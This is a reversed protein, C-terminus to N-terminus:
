ERRRISRRKRATKERATVRRGVVTEWVITVADVTDDHDADPFGSLESIFAKNWGGRVVVVNGADVRHLWPHARLLKGGKAGKKEVKAKGLLQQKIDQYLGVFGAVAEIAIRQVNFEETDVETQHIINVRNKVWSAKNRFMDVIYLTDTEKHYGGLAGASYDSSQKETVALDWGRVLEFGLEKHVERFESMAMYKLNGVDVQGGMSSIPNGQYQSSWEYHPISAKVSLLFATDRVEPFLALDAEVRGLPDGDIGESLAPLNTVEFIESEQGLSRLHEERDDNTLYGILDQPHWRTATVFVKANPALRSKVDANFWDIVVERQIKSEAEERGAHPDDIIKWDIRRGTFKKGTTKLQINSGNDWEREEVNDVNDKGMAMDPFIAKYIPMTTISKIERSFKNVLTSSFASIGISIGETHGLLWASALVTTFTSKGHQPPLSLTQYKSCVGDVTDQVRKCMYRHVAGLQIDTMSPFEKPPHILYVFTLFDERAREVLAEFAVQKEDNSLQILSM